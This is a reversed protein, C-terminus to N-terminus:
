PRLGLLRRIGEIAADEYQEPNDSLLKTTVITGDPRRAVVDTFTGGRDIWCQWGERGSADRDLGMVGNTRRYARGTLKVAPGFRGHQERERLLGVRDSRGVCTARRSQLTPLEAM